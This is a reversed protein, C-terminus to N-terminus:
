FSFSFYIVAGGMTSSAKLDQESDTSEYSIRVRNMGLGMGWKQTFFWDVTARSEVIAGKVGGTSISFYEFSPRFFLGKRIVFSGFLGVVPVPALVSKGEKVFQLESPVGNEIVTGQGSLEVKLKITALGASLGVEARDDRIFSYRYATKLYQTSYKSDISADVGYTVDGWVIEEDLTRNGKRSDLFYAVDLRHKPAFRWYTDLRIDTRRDDLGLVSELDVITGAGETASLQASTAFSILFTGFSINFRDKQPDPGGARAPSTYAGATVALMLIWGAARRM